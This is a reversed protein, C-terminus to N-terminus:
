YKFKGKELTTKSEIYLFPRISLILFITIVILMPVVLNIWLGFPIDEKINM